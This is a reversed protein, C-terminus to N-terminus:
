ARVEALEQKKSWHLSEGRDIWYTPDVAVVDAPSGPRPCPWPVRVWPEWEDLEFRGLYHGTMCRGCAAWRQGKSDVPAPAALVRNM